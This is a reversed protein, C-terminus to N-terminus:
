CWPMKQLQTQATNFFTARSCEKLDWNERSITQKNRQLHPVQTPQHDYPPLPPSDEGRTLEHNPIVGPEAYLGCCEGYPLGRRKVSHMAVFIWNIYEKSPFQAAETGIRVNM